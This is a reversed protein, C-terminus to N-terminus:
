EKINKKFSEVKEDIKFFSEKFWEVDWYDAFLKQWEHWWKSKKAHKIPCWYKETRWWIEVAYSFVWNVYSCYICNLKQIVNLYDLIWRDYIIYDSRRVLPIRYLRFVTQQYIFLGFDLILVPFYFWYIFPISILERMKAFFITEFISKKQKKNKKRIDSNFVIKRWKIKFGYKEMLKLYEIKLESKKNEIDTLIKNIQSKM